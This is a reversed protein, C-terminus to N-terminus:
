FHSGRFVPRTFFRVLEPGDDSKPGFFPASPGLSKASLSFSLIIDKM